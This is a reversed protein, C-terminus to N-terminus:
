VRGGKRGEFLMLLVLGAIGISVWVDALNFTYWRFRGVGVDVFDVVAGRLMRDVINGVAGGLITSYFFKYSRRRERLMLWLLFVALVSAVVAYPFNEGLSIGFATNYNMVLTIRLFNGLVEVPSHLPLSRYVVHKTALDLFALLASYLLLLLSFPPDEVKLWDRLRQFMTAIRFISM